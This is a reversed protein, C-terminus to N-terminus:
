WLHHLASAHHLLRHSIQHRIDFPFFGLTALDVSRAPLNQQSSDFAIHVVDTLLDYADHELTVVVLHDVEAHHHRAILNESGCSLFVDVEDAQASENCRREVLHGVHGAFHLPQFEVNGQENAACRRRAHVGGDLNLLPVMARRDVHQVCGAGNPDHSTEEAKIPALGEGLFM